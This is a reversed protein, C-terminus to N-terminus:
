FSLIFIKGSHKPHIHFLIYKMVYFIKIHTEHKPSYPFCHYFIQLINLYVLVLLLQCYFFDKSFSKSTHTMKVKLNGCHEFSNENMQFTNILFLFINCTCQILEFFLQFFFGELNNLSKLLCKFMNNKPLVWVFSKKVQVPNKMM